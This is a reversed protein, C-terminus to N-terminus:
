VVNKRDQQNGAPQIMGQVQEARRQGVATPRRLGPLPDVEPGKGDEPRLADSSTGSTLYALAPFLVPIFPAGGDDTDAEGLLATTGAGAPSQAGGTLRTM